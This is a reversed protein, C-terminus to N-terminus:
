TKQARHISFANTRRIVESTYGARKLMKAYPLFTNAVILLQGNRALRPRASELLRQMMSLNQEHGQHYPPNTIILDVPEPVANNNIDVQLLPYPSHNDCQIPYFDRTTDAAGISINDHLSQNSTNQWACALALLDIDSLHVHKAGRQAATLGLVGSGCGVDWVTKDKVIESTLHDLLMASGDDLHEWSFIGPLTQHSQPPDSVLLDYTHYSDLVLGSQNQWRTQKVQETKYCTGVRCHKKIITTEGSGFYQAADKIISKAGLQTQGVLYLPANPKLARKICTFLKRTYFRGKPVTLLAADYQEAEVPLVTQHVTILNNKEFHQSLVLYRRFDKLYLDIQMEPFLQHSQRVLYGTPDELVLLRQPAQHNAERFAQFLLQQANHLADQKISM